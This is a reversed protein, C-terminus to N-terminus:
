APRVVAVGCTAHAIMSKSTSGMLMGAFGGRGRSGVVVLSPRLDSRDPQACRDLLVSAPRGQVAHPQVSVEPYKPGWVALQEALLREEEAEIAAPDALLPYVGMFGELAGLDWARIAILPVRRLAAEEFAFALADESDLSGDLGVLVPGVESRHTVSEDARIVVVPGFAHETLRAAVSGLLAETLQHEGYSGVVTLVATRSAAQLAAVPSDSELLTTVSLGPYAAKVTDTARRLMQAGRDRAGALIEPGVMSARGGPISIAYAHVLCLGVGRRQAEGAAWTAAGTAADSGDIGVVIFHDILDDQTRTEGTPDWVRQASM